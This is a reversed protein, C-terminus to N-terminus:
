LNYKGWGWAFREYDLFNIENDVVLDAAPNFNDQGWQSLWSQCFLGLDIFDVDGDSDIDGVPRVDSVADIEASVEGIAGEYHEVANTLRIYRFSYINAPQWNQPNVAWNLSEKMKKM